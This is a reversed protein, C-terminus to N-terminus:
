LWWIWSSGHVPPAELFQRLAALLDGPSSRRARDFRSPSTFVIGPHARDEAAWQVALPMFDAVNGTVLVRHAATARALVEDDPLGRLAPEAGVAVVDHSAGCLAVAIAPAHMEDLLVKM